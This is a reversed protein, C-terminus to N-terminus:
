NSEPRAVYEGPRPILTVARDNNMAWHLHNALWKRDSSDTWDISKTEAPTYGDGLRQSADLKHNTCIRVKM